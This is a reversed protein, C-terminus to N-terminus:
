FGLTDLLTDVDGQTQTANSSKLQPGQLKDGGKGPARAGGEHVHGFTSIMEVLEAELSALLNIIKQITQGTLDQYSQAVLIQTVIQQNRAYEETRRNLTSQISKLSKEVAAPLNKGKLASAVTRQVAKDRTEQQKLAAALSEAYDMTSNAANETMEVIYGLRQGADEMSHQAINDLRQPIDSRIIKMQEYFNRVLKGIENFLARPEGEVGGLLQELKGRDAELMVKILQHYRELLDLSASAAVRDLPIKTILESLSAILKKELSM